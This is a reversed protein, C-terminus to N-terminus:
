IMDSPRLDLTKLEGYCILTYIVALVPALFLLLFFIFGFIYVLPTLCALAIIIVTTWHYTNRASGKRTFWGATAHVIMSLVQWGGTVFYATFILGTDIICAVLFGAIMGTSILLDLQKFRKM